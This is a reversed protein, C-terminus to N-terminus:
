FRRQVGLRGAQHDVPEGDQSELNEVSAFLHLAGGRGLAVCFAIAFPELDEGNLAGIQGFAENLEPSLGQGTRAAELKVALQLHVVVGRQVGGNVQFRVGM